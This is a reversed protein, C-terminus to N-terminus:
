VFRLNQCSPNTVRAKSIRALALRVRIAAACSLLFRSTPLGRIRGIVQTAAGDMSWRATRASAPADGISNSAEPDVACSPAHSPDDLAVNAVIGVSGVRPALVILRRGAQRLAKTQM